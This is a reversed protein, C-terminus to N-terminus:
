RPDGDINNGVEDGSAMTPATIAVGPALSGANMRVLPDLHLAVMGAVDSAAEFNWGRMHDALVQRAEDLEAATPEASVPMHDLEPAIWYGSATDYGAGEAPTGNEQLFM